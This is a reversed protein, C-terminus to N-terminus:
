YLSGVRVVAKEIILWDDLAYEWWRRENQMWGHRIGDTIHEM